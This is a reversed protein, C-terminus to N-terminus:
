IDAVPIKKDEYMQKAMQLKKENSLQSKPRGGKRGRSRAAQLGAQTREILIDREMEAFASAVYYMCKGMPSHTDIDMTLVKLHVGRKSFDNFVQVAQQM